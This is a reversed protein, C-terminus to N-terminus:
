ALESGFRERCPSDIWGSQGLFITLTLFLFDPHIRDWYGTIDLFVLAPRSVSAFCGQLYSGAYCYFYVFRPDLRRSKALLRLSPYDPHLQQSLSYSM